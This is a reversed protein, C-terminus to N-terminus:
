RRATIFFGLGDRGSPLDLEPTQPPPEPKATEIQLLTMQCGMTSAAVACGIINDWWHNDKRSINKWMNVTSGGGSVQDPEEVIMHEILPAVADLSNGPLRWAGQRAGQLFRASIQEKFFNADFHVRQVGDAVFERPFYWRPRLPNPGCRLVRKTSMDYQTVPRDRPGPALGKSTHVNHFNSLLIGEIVPDQKYGADVLGTSVPFQQGTKSIWMTENIKLILDRVGLKIAENIDAGPYKDSLKIPASRLTFWPLPQEPWTGFGLISGTFDSGVAATSWYLLEDHIDIHFVVHGRGDPVVHPQIGNLREKLLGRNLSLVLNASQREPRNQCESAFVEPGDDILINIGHQLASIEDPELQINEWEVKSGREMEEQNSWYFETAELKAREQGDLDEQDYNRRIKAYEVLWLTDLADPLKHIMPVRVTQWEPHLKDDGLQDVLDDEEIVTANIVVSVQRGHGGLRLVSKQIKRKRVKTQTPSKASDDTQPDDIVVFDPRVNRGNKKFRLGRMSGLLGRSAIRVGFSENGKISPLVILGSSWKMKTRVGKYTQSACRQAKGELKQSPICVEPFDDELLQNEELETQLSEIATEADDDTAGLFVIYRRHGYLAMWLIANESITSKVFGRPMLNLVRGSKLVCREIRRIVEVQKPSFPSLGTSDPFYTQLFALLDHKCRERREPDKIPPLDGVDAVGAFHKRSRAAALDRQRDGERLTEEIREETAIM